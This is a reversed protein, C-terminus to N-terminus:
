KPEGPDGRKNSPYVFAHSLSARMLGPDLQPTCIHSTRALDAGSTSVVEDGM